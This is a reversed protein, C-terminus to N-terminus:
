IFLRSTSFTCGPERLLMGSMFKGRALLLKSVIENM